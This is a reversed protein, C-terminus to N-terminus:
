ALLVGLPIAFLNKGLAVAETGNYALIGARCDPTKAMFAELGRLDRRGFRSAAKVEIAVSDRGTSVIM